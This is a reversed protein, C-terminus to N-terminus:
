IRVNQNYQTSSETTLRKFSIWISKILDAYRILQFQVMTLTTACNPSGLRSASCFASLSKSCEFVSLSLLPPSKLSLSTIMLCNTMIPTFIGHRIMFLGGVKTWAWFWRLIYYNLSETRTPANGVVSSAVNARAQVTTGLICKSADSRSCFINTRALIQSCM